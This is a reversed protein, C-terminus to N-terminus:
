KRQLTCHFVTKVSKKPVNAARRMLAYARARFEYLDYPKGLYDDGNDRSWIASSNLPIFGGNGPMDLVDKGLALQVPITTTAFKAVVAGFSFRKL